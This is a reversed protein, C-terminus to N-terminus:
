SQSRGWKALRVERLQPWDEFEFQVPQLRSCEMDGGIAVLNGVFLSAWVRVM